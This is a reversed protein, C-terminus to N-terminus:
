KEITKAADPGSEKIATEPKEEKKEEVNVEEKKDEKKEEVKSETKEEVKPAEPHSKIIINELAASNIDSLSSSEISDSSSYDEAGTPNFKIQIGGCNAIILCIHSFKM